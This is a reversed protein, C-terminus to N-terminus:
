EGFYTEMLEWLGENHRFNRNWVSVGALDYGMYLQLKLDMSRECELWVRYLVAGDEESAVFEGYYKGTDPLWEWGTGEPFSYEFWARTYSTGHHFRTRTELTNNGIVERWVRNYFPLGLVVQTAPVERLMDEIGRQVFPLSAVPGSEPARPWHEEYAMVVIFDIFYAMLDRRYYPTAFPVLVNKSFVVGRERLGPGLERLFQILYPAVAQTIHEFGINIGDLGLDDINHLLTDIVRQRAERDTLIARADAASVDFVYPWVQVGQAQAWRVYERNALSTLGMTEEDLRFWMPALVNVSEHLPRDMMEVNAAQSYISDWTMVVPTGVPWIPRPHVRNDILVALLPERELEELPLATTREGLYDTLVWGLLGDNNRVRTFDGVEEFLVLVSGQPEQATIPANSFERYRIDSSRTLAATTRPLAANEVVVMNYTPYYAVIIPYLAEALGSPLFTEDDVRRIPHEMSHPSGNIYFRTQNPYFALVDTITTVFMVQAYSDWFLFPDFNNHLFSMPLYIVGDEVFPQPANSVPQRERDLVLNTIGPDLGHHEHFPVVRNNAGCNLAQLHPWFAQWLLLGVGGIIVVTGVFITIGWQIKRKDM